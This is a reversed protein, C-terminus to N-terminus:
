SLIDPLFFYTVGSCPNFNIMFYLNFTLRLINPILMEITIRKLNDPLAPGACATLSLSDAVLQGARM